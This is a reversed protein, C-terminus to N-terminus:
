EVSDHKFAVAMASGRAKAQFACGFLENIAIAGDAAFKTDKPRMNRDLADLKDSRCLCCDGVAVAFLVERKVRASVAAAGGAPYVKIGFRFRHRDIESKNFRGM